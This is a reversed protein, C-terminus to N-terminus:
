SLFLTEIAAPMCLQSLLVLKEITSADQLLANREQLTISEESNSKRLFSIEKWIFAEASSKRTPKRVVYSQTIHWEEFTNMITTIWAYHYSNILAKKLIFASISLLSHRWIYSTTYFIVDKWPNCLGAPSLSSQLRCSAFQMCTVSVYPTSRDVLWRKPRAHSCKWRNQLWSIKM